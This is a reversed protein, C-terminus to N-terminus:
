YLQVNELLCNEKATYKNNTLKIVWISRHSKEIEYKVSDRLCNSVATESDPVYISAEEQNPAM